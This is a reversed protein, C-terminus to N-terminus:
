GEYDERIDKLHALNKIGMFEAANHNTIRDADWAEMVLSTYLQGLANRYRSGYFKARGFSKYRRELEDFEPKKVEWYFSPRVYRLQVLRVLAAHPSVGFRAAIEDLRTDPIEPLPAAPIPFFHNLSPAPLLFAGAFRNCWEEVRRVNADGGASTMQGVIASTQLLIHAFEHALTFAQAAPSKSGFVIVPLPFAAICFGRANVNKLDSRRLILVGLSKIKGRIVNPSPGM